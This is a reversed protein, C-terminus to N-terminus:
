NRYKNAKLKVNFYGIILVFTFGGLGAAIIDTAFNIIEINIFKGFTFRWLILLLIIGILAIIGKIIQGSINQERISISSRDTYIKEIGEEARLFLIHDCNKILDWGSDKLLQNYEEFEEKSLKQYDICYNYNNPEGRELIYFGCKMDKLHWGKKSYETLM